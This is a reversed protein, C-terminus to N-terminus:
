CHYKNDLVTSIMYVGFTQALCCSVFILRHGVLSCSYFRLQLLDIIKDCLSNYGVFDGEISEFIGNAFM